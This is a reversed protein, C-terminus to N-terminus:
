KSRRPKELSRWLRGHCFMLLTARAQFGKSGFQFISSKKLKSYSTLWRTVTKTQQGVRSFPVECQRVTLSCFLVVLNSWSEGSEWLRLSQWWKLGKSSLAGQGNGRRVIKRWSWHQFVLTQRKVHQCDFRRSWQLRFLWPMWTYTSFKLKHHKSREPLMRPWCSAFTPCAHKLTSLCHSGANLSM